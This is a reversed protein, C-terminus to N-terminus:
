RVIEVPHSRELSHLEINGISLNITVQYVITRPKSENFSMIGQTAALITLDTLTGEIVASEYVTRITAEGIMNATLDGVTIRRPGPVLAPETTLKPRDSPIKSM